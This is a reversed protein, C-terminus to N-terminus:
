AVYIHIYDILPYLTKCELKIRLGDFYYLATQVEFILYNNGAVVTQM